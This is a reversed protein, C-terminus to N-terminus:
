YFQRVEELYGEFNPRLEIVLDELRSNKHKGYKIKEEIKQAIAIVNKAGAIQSAGYLKHAYYLLSKEDSIKLSSHISLIMAAAHEQYKQVLTM